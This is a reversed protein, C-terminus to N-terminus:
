RVRIVAMYYALAAPLLLLIHFAQIRLVVIIVSVTVGVVAIGVLGRGRKRNSVLSVAEGVAFGTGGALLWPLFPIGLTLAWLLGGVIGVVAAAVSARLYYGTSVDYTPHRTVQACDRCRAGVPTQIMCRPCIYQGCKGCALGTEVEPHFTCRHLGYQVEEWAASSGGPQPEVAGGCSTCYRAQPGNETGCAPCTIPSASRGM